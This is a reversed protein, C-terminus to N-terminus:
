PLFGVERALPFYDLIFPPVTSQPLGRQFPDNAYLDLPPSLTLTCINPSLSNWASPVALTLTRLPDPRTNSTSTFEPLHHPWSMPLVKAKVQLSTPARPLARLHPQEPSHTSLQSPYPKHPNILLLNDGYEPLPLTTPHTSPTLIPVQLISSGPPPVSFGTVSEQSEEARAAEWDSRLSERLSQDQITCDRPETRLGRRKM